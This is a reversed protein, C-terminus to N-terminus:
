NPRSMINTTQDFQTASEYEYSEFICYKTNCLFEEALIRNDKLLSLVRIQNYKKLDEEHSSVIAEQFREKSMDRESISIRHLDYNFVYLSTSTVLVVNRTDLLLKSSKGNISAERELILEFKDGCKQFKRLYIQDDLTFFILIDKCKNRMNYASAEGVLLLGDVLIHQEETSEDVVQKGSAIEKIKLNQGKQMPNQSVAIEVYENQFFLVGNEKKFSLEIRGEDIKYSEIGGKNKEVLLM